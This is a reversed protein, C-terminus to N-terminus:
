GEDGGIGIIGFASVDPEECSLQTTSAEEDGGIGIIGDTGIGIIGDTGIGIIGYQGIGIIGFFSVDGTDQSVQCETDANAAGGVILAIAILAAGTVKMSNM